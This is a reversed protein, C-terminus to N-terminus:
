YFPPTIVVGSIDSTDVNHEEKQLDSQRQKSCIIEELFEHVGSGYRAGHVKGYKLLKVTDNETIVYDLGETLNESLNLAKAIANILSAFERIDLKTPFSTNFTSYLASFNLDDEDESAIQEKYFFLASQVFAPDDWKNPM